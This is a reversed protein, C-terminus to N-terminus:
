FVFFDTQRRARRAPCVAPPAGPACIMQSWPAAWDGKERNGWCYTLVAYKTKKLQSWPITEFSEPGFVGAISKKAKWHQELVDYSTMGDVDTGDIQTFTSLVPNTLLDAVKLLVMDPGQAQDVVQMKGRLMRLAPLGLM